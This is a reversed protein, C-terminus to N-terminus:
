AGAINAVTVFCHAVALNACTALTTADNTPEGPSAWGVTIQYQTTSGPVVAITYLGGPLQASIDQNAITYTALNGSDAWMQGVLKQAIYSADSRFKSSGTNKLMAAQLGVLALIGFSFVVLAILAELLMMGQQSSKGKFM